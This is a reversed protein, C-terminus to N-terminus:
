KSTPSHQLYEIGTGTKPASLPEFATFTGGTLHLRLQAAVEQALVKIQEDDIEVEVVKALGYGEPLGSAIPITVKIKM